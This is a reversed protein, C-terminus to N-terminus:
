NTGNTIWERFVNNYNGKNGLMKKMFALAIGKEKDFVDGPQCKVVTKTGDLWCIITAPPNFIIKKIGSKIKRREDKLRKKMKKLEEQTIWISGDEMRGM